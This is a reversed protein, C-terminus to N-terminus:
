RLRGAYDTGWTQDWARLYTKTAEYGYEEIMITLWDAM